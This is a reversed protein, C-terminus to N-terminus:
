LRRDVDRTQRLPQDGGLRVADRALVREDGARVLESTDDRLVDACVVGLSEVDDDRM